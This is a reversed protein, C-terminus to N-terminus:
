CCRVNQIELENLPVNKQTQDDDGFVDFVADDDFVVDFTGDDNVKEISADKEIYEYKVRVKMGVILMEPATCEEWVIIGSLAAYMKNLEDMLENLTPYNPHPFYTYTPIPLLMKSIIEVKRFLRCM